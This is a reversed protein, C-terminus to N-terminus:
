VQSGISWNVPFSTYNQFQNLKSIEIDSQRLMEQSVRSKSNKEALVNTATIITEIQRTIM